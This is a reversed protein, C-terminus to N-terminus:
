VFVSFLHSLHCNCPIKFHTIAAGQVDLHEFFISALPMGQLPCCHGVWDGAGRHGHMLKRDGGDHMCVFLCEEPTAPWYFTIKNARRRVGLSVSQVM